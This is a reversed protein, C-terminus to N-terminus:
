FFKHLTKQFRRLMELVLVDSCRSFGFCYTVIDMSSHIKENKEENLVWSLSFLLWFSTSLVVCLYFNKFILLSLTFYVKIHCWSLDNQPFPMKYILHFTVLFEFQSDELPNLFAFPHSIPTLTHPPLADLIGNLPLHSILVM